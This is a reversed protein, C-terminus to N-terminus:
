PDLIERTERYLPGLSTDWHPHPCPLPLGGRGVTVHYGVPCGSGRCRANLEDVNMSQAEHDGPSQRPTRASGPIAEEPLTSLIPFPAKVTLGAPQAPHRSCPMGAALSLFLAPGMQKQLLLRLAPIRAGM